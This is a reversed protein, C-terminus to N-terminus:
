RGCINSISCIHSLFAEPNSRRRNRWAMMAEIASRNEYEITLGPHEGTFVRLHDMGEWASEVREYSQTIWRDLARNSDGGDGRQAAVYRPMYYHYDGIGSHIFDMAIASINRSGRSYAGGRWVTGRQADIQRISLYQGDTLRGQRWHPLIVILATRFREDEIYGPEGENLREIAMQLWDNLSIREGEIIEPELVPFHPADFIIRDVVGSDNRILHYNLSIDTSWSGLERLTRQIHNFIQQLNSSLILQRVNGPVSRHRIYGGLGEYVNGGPLIESWMDWQGDRRNIHIDITGVDYPQEGYCQIMPAMSQVPIRQQADLDNTQVFQGSQQIVHTLEHALLHRGQSGSPQYQGAGFVINEGFTFARANVASATEAAQSDTHLRVQSFDAGFRPEFFERESPPLPKGGGNLATIQNQLSSSVKSPQESTTKTQLTEEEEEMPETQKQVLPTIQEALPQTQLTEEEEEPAISQRQLEEECEPCIRQVKPEPIGMVQKSVQEAEQEYKDGPQSMTLKTQIFRNVAQNGLKQQLQLMPHLPNISPPTKTVKLSKKQHNGKKTKNRTTRQYAM